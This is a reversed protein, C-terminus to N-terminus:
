KPPNDRNLTTDVFGRLPDLFTGASNRPVVPAHELGWELQDKLDSDEDETLIGGLQNLVWFQVSGKYLEWLWIFREVSYKYINWEAVSGRTVSPRKDDLFFLMKKVFKDDLVIRAHLIDQEPRDIKKLILPYLYREAASCLRTAQTIMYRISVSFEKYPGDIDVKVQDILQDLNQMERMFLDIGSKPGRDSMSSSVEVNTEHTKPFPRADRRQQTYREPPYSYSGIDRRPQETRSTDIGRQRVLPQRQARTSVGRTEYMMYEPAEEHFDNRDHFDYRNYGTNDM